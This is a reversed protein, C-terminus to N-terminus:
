IGTISLLQYHNNFSFLAPYYQILAYKESISKNYYGQKTKVRYKPNNTQENKAGM